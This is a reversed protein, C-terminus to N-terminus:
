FKNVLEATSTLQIKTNNVRFTAWIKSKIKTCLFTRRTSIRFEPNLTILSLCKKFVEQFHDKSKDRPSKNSWSSLQWRQARVTSIQSSKCTAIQLWILILYMQVLMSVQPKSRYRHHFSVLSCRIWLICIAESPMLRVRIPRRLVLLVRLGTTMLAGAVQIGRAMLKHKPGRICATSTRHVKCQCKNTQIWIIQITGKQVILLNEQTKWRKQLQNIRSSRVTLPM